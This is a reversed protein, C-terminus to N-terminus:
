AARTTEGACLWSSTDQRILAKEGAMSLAMSEASVVAKTVASSAAKTGAMWLAIMAAMM